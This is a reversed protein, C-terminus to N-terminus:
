LVIGTVAYHWTIYVMLLASLGMLVRDAARRRTVLTLMPYLAYMAGLYRTGSLLWTPASAIYLYVLAYAGDGPSLARWTLALLVLVIVISVAQPIWTGWQLAADGYSHANVLTYRLTNYLSGFSQSWHEKQYRLFTFASGIVQANLALYALFGASIVCSQGFRRGAVRLLEGRDGGARERADLIGEYFVPIATLLGLMRSGAALAGFLVARAFCRRRAMWVSLLTLLLFLSESYPISFFLSTPTFFLFRVARRAATRGAEAETMRYLVYGAALACANSVILCTWETRMGTLPDLARVVLPYLPFFVIHLRADGENVYWNRALGVYHNADWRLWPNLPDSLYEQLSGKAAYGFFGTLWIVARSLFFLGFVWALVRKLDAPMKKRTKLPDRGFPVPAADPRFPEVFYRLALLVLLVVVAGTSLYSIGTVALNM